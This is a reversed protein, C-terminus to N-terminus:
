LDHFMKSCRWVNNSSTQVSSDPFVNESTLEEQHEFAQWAEESYKGEEDFCDRHYAAYVFQVTHVSPAVVFSYIWFLM